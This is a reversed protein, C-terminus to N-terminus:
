CERPDRHTSAPASLAPRWTITWAMPSRAFACAHEVDELADFALVPSAIAAEADLVGLVERRGVNRRKAASLTMALM